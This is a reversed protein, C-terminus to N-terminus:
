SIAVQLEQEVVLVSDRVVRLMDSLSVVGNLSGEEDIVWLRHVHNSVASDIVDLMSTEHYCTILRRTAAGPDDRDMPASTANSARVSLREKFQTVSISLWSQLLAIPCSRLDTASFTEVLKKGKGDQLIQDGLLDEVVPVASLGAARMSKIADMVNTHKGVAFVIESIAGLEAVSRSLIEKLDIKQERLFRLVDMQTLMRYGPSEEVLEVSVAQNTQSEVPVLARHVGKSLTEMCDLLSTNPNLTWLSLSELSHGIITSVPVAMWCDLNKDDHDGLEAIHSLVDLMTLMGIYHKRVAGTARDSELIMSGGAGIWQGPPAAVPVASVRNALLANFTDALTASYPVEVLRRQKDRVFERVWRYRLWGYAGRRIKKNRNSISGEGGGQQTQDEHDDAM